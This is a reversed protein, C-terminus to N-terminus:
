WAACRGAPSTWRAPAAPWHLRTAPRGVRVMLDSGMIGCALHANIMFALGGFMKKEVFEARDALEVRVREALDEDHAM